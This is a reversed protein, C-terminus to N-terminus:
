AFVIDSESMFGSWTNETDPRLLFNNFNHIIEDSLTLAISYIPTLKSPIQQAKLNM